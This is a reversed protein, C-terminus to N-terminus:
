RIKVYRWTHVGFLAIAVIACCVAVPRSIARRQQQKTGVDEKQQSQPQQPDSAVTMSGNSEDGEHQNAFMAIDIITDIGM